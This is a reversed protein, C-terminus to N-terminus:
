IVGVIQLIVLLITVAWGSGIAYMLMKSKTQSEIRFNTNKKTEKILGEEGNGQIASKIWKVDNAVTAMQTYIKSIDKNM